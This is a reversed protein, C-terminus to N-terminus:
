VGEILELSADIPVSISAALSTVEVDVPNTANPMMQIRAAPEPAVWGGMGGAQAFGVSIRVVLTTGPTITTADNKWASDAARSLKNRPEPTQATGGSAVTGTNSKLRLQGGGATLFRPAAYLGAIQAVQQNAITTGWMVQSETNATGNTTHARSLDYYFPM